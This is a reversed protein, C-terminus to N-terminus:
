VLDKMDLSFDYSNRGYSSFLTEYSSKAAM